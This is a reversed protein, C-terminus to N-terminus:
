PKADNLLTQELLNGIVNSSVYLLADVDNPLYDYESNWCFYFELCNNTCCIDYRKCLQMVRSGKQLSTSWNWLVDEEGGNKHLSVRCCSMETEECFAGVIKKTQAWNTVSIPPSILSPLHKRLLFAKSAVNATSSLKNKRFSSIGCLRLLFYVDTAAILIFVMAPFGNGSISIVGALSFVLSFTVLLLTTKNHSYGKDLLRHHLHGRDPLMIPVGTMLRRFIALAIDLLPVAVFLVYGAHFTNTSSSEIMFIPLASIVFGLFYTGSDGLFISAPSTNFILFATLSGALTCCVIVIFGGGLMMDLIAIGVLASLAIGSCLGDAGDIFNVANTVGVVWLVTFPLAYDGLQLTGLFPIEIAHIQLGTLYIVLAAAVQFALKYRARVCRVDDYLGTLWVIVAGCLLSVFSVFQPTTVGAFGTNTTYLMVYLAIFFSVAVSVGGLRPVTRKNARRNDPMDYIQFKKGIKCLFFTLLWCFIFAIGFYLIFHLIQRV